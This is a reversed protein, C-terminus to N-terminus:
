TFPHLEGDELPLTPPRLTMRIAGIGSLFSTNGQTVSCADPPLKRLPVQQTKLAFIVAIVELPILVRKAREGAVPKQCSVLTILLILAVFFNLIDEGDDNSSHQLWSM